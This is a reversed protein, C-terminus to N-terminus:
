GDLKDQSPTPTQIGDAPVEAKAIWVLANLVLKRFDDVKWNNHVHAGTFGVGRGGNKRTYAWATTQIEKKELIANRVHENNSHPGDPRELTSPPPLARLIHVLNDQDETFRMHYYWEDHAEFPQVGRTIPHN